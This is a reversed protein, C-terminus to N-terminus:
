ANQFKRHNANKTKQQTCRAPTAVHLDVVLHILLKTKHRPVSVGNQVDLDNFAVPLNEANQRQSM